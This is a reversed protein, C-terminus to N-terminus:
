NYKKNRKSKNKDGATYKKALCILVVLSVLIVTLLDIYFKQYWPVHLAPSRLHLAGNTKVVHDVWHRIEEGPSIPRHHYIFSLSKATKTYTPDALMAQIANRIDKVMTYSLNVKIAFGKRVVREANAFQDVMVPITIMPVGFHVSETTSLLGGHSIFFLTKPHALISQQPAWHVVHVNKPKNPLDTEFKWIVTQKLEGFMQLIERTVAEPLDQSRLNSGLSFYIVGHEANDMLKKLDDPLPKVDTEIHYGGIPIYNQPLRTAEGLSVHSNGFMLSANYSLENLSPVPKNRSKVHPVLYQEYLENERPAIYFYHLWSGYVQNGLEELRQWFNFPPANNSSLHSVYAPNPMEDILRLAMWHPELSSLWIFPCDYVASIGANLDHFVWEAIILDFKQTHDSLFKQMVDSKYTLRGIEVLIDMLIYLSQLETEGDMMKKVDCVGTIGKINESVDIVTLNKQPKPPYPTIYTVEHGGNLLHRVLGEGLIGHSKGPLIIPVLIKYPQVASLVALGTFWVLWAM